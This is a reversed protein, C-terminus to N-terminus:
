SEFYYFQSVCSEQERPGVFDGYTFQHKYLPAPVHLLGCARAIIPPEMLSTAVLDTPRHSTTQHATTQLGYDAELIDSSYDIYALWLITCTKLTVM